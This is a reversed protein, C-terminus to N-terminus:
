SGDSRKTRGREELTANIEAGLCFAYASVYFWLLLIVVAGLSGFIENYAGFNSVYSSFGISAAVWLIAAVLAGPSLWRFRVGRRHPGYHYLIALGVLLIVVLIPWRLLLLNDTTEDSLDFLGIVVPLAAIGAMAAVAYFIAGLTFLYSLLGTLLIGRKETTDYAVGLATMLARMGKTASWIAFILSAMFGLSLSRSGQDVVAKTQNYLIAFAEPPMIEGLPDLQAEVAAPDFLLGYVAVMAVIAPFIALFAFFAVGAALMGLNDDRAKELIRLPVDVWPTHRLAKLGALSWWAGPASEGEAM